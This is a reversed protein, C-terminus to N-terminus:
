GNKGNPWHWKNCQQCKWERRLRGTKKDNFEILEM